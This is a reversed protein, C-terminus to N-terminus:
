HSQSKQGMQDMQKGSESLYCPPASSNSSVLELKTLEAIIQRREGSDAFVEMFVAAPLKLWVARDRAKIFQKALPEYWEQNFTGKNDEVSLINPGYENIAEVLAVVETLPSDGAILVIELFPTMKLDRYNITKNLNALSRHIAESLKGSESDAWIHVKYHAVSYKFSTCLLEIDIPTDCPAVFQLYNIDALHAHAMLQYLEDADFSNGCLIDLRNAEKEFLTNSSQKKLQKPNESKSNLCGPCDHSCGGLYQFCDNEAQFQVEYGPTYAWSNRSAMNYSDCVTKAALQINLLEEKSIWNSSYVTYPAAPDFDYGFEVGRKRLETGNLLLLENCFLRSPRQKKVYDIGKLFTAATEHPLGSILYINTTAKTSRLLAMGREFKDLSHRRHIAKLTAPNISQLGFDVASFLSFYEANTENVQDAYAEISISFQYQEKIQILADSMQRLRDINSNFFIPDLIHFFRAGKKAMHRLEEVLRDVSASRVKCKKFGEFCFACHFPCGRTGELMIGLFNGPNPPMLDSLVVSPLDDLSEVVDGPRTYQIKNNDRYWLGSVKNPDQLGLEQDWHHLFQKLPMEGEGDIIYDFAPVLQLYNTLSNTVEQGGCIIQSTPSTEKIAPALELCEKQNWVNMSIGVLSPKWVAIASLLETLSQDRVTEIFRIDYKLNLAPDQSIWLSLLRVALSPHSKTNVAILLVPIKGKTAPWSAPNNSLELHHM